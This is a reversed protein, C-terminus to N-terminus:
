FGSELGEKLPPKERSQGGLPDVPEGDIRGTSKYVYAMFFTKLDQGLWNEVFTRFDETTVTKLKNAAFFAALITMFQNKGGALHALHAMLKSGYSYSEIPFQLDYPSYGSLKIPTTFPLSAVPNSNDFWRALAEDIWGDSYYRPFVGTAYWSHFVEHRLAGLSTITAGAYEMGGSGPVLYVVFKDGHAYTGLLTEIQALHDLAVTLATAPAAASGSTRYVQVTVPGNLSNFTGTARDIITNQALVHFFPALANIRSPYSFSWENTGSNTITTNAFFDYTNATNIVKMSGTFSFRDYLM